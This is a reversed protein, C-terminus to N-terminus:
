ANLPQRKERVEREEEFIRASKWMLMSYGVFGLVFTISGIALSNASLDRVYALIILFNISAFFLFMAGITVRAFRYGYLTLFACGIILLSSNFRESSDPSSITIPQWYNFAGILITLGILFLATNKQNQKQATV